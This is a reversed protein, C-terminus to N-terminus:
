VSMKKMSKLSQCTTKPLLHNEGFIYILVFSVVFYVLPSIYPMDALLYLRLTGLESSFPFM